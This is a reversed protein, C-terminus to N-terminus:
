FNAEEDFDDLFESSADGPDDGGGDAVYGMGVQVPTVVREWAKRFEELADEMPVTVPLIGTIRVERGINQSINNGRIEITLKLM